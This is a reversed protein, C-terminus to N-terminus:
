RCLRLFRDATLFAAQKRARVDVAEEDQGWIEAQFIDDVMASDWLDQAPYSGIVCAMGIVWSGTLTVFEHFATLQWADFLATHEDIKTLSEAPQAIPMVGIQQHLDVALARSAWALLPDWAAKQRDILAEPGVARYCLLDSGGYEALLAAVDELQVSVKDLASNALRTLPMTDPAVVKDQADWEQAIADALAHTPLTLLQKAPTKVSRGDLEVAFGNDHAAVTAQTWFRKQTWESM